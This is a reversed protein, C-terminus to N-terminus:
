LKTAAIHSTTEASGEFMASVRDIWFFGIDSDLRDIVLALIIISVAITLAVTLNRIIRNKRRIFEYNEELLKDKAKMQDEKFKIQEKLYDIRHEDQLHAASLEAKHDATMSNLMSRLHDCEKEAKHLRELLDPNDVYETVDNGPMDCPYQGWTGNVLVKLIRAITSMKIDDVNGSIFRDVSVKSMTAQEAIYANTWKPDIKHLYDKRLRCWESLRSLEMALFNPGDCHKGLRECTVCVNYPKAELTKPSFPM